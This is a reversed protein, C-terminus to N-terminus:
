KTLVDDQKDPPVTDNKTWSFFLLVTYKTKHSYGYQPDGAVMLAGTKPNYGTAAFKAVGQDTDKDYLALKPLALTGAIPIPVNYSPIGFLTERQDIASAGSRLEVVMDAVKKDDILRDGHRLFSDRIAAIAYKGDLADFNTADIFINSGPPTAQSLKEAARDAASSVLLEETATRATTTETQSSCGALLLASVGLSIFKPSM